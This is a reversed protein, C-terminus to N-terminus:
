PQSGSQGPAQGGPVGEEATNTGVLTWARVWDYRATNIASNTLDAHSPPQMWDYTECVMNVHLPRDFPTASYNTAPHVTFQYEDDLYFNITNADVWCAGYTHFTEGVPPDVPAKNGADIDEKKGEVRHFYHTNCNMQRHWNTAWAPEGQPAGITEVIDIELSVDGGAERKRGGSLWFTSSMSVKSAKMRAEYYGYFAEHSRSQVAGGSITFDGEPKPLIGTSIQLCGNNM